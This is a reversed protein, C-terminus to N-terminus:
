IEVVQVPNRLQGSDMYMAAANVLITKKQNGVWIRDWMVGEVAYYIVKALDLYRGFSLFDRVFGKPRAASKEYAKQGGDWCLYSRGAAAHIHGVVHLKPRVKWVEKLLHACGVSSLQLDDRHYKPPTHTVLIDINRPIAGAWADDDKNYQFAFNAPGCKPIQPAGYIRLRRSQSPFHLEVSDHQLYKVTGWDLEGSQEEATLTERSRPDLYTDHNGAIAIKYKHPLSNLWDIAAQLEKVNGKDTMDGAHILLDGDPVKCKLTHTDSICVVRIPREPRPFWRLRSTWEFIKAVLYNLPSSLFLEAVSPPEWTERSQFLFALM